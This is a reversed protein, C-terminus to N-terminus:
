PKLKLAQTCTHSPSYKFLLFLCRGNWAVVAVKLDKLVYYISFLLDAAIIYDMNYM